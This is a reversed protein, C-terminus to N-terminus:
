RAVMLKPEEHLFTDIVHNVKAPQEYHPMHGAEEIKVVSMSPFNSRYSVEMKQSFYPDSTGYILLLDSVSLDNLEDLKNQNLMNQWTSYNTYKYGEFDMFYALRKSYVEFMEKNYFEKRQNEVARPYWYAAMIFDSLVPVKLVPALKFDGSASPDILVMKKVRHPNKHAYDIGVIAGMSMAVISFTDTVHLEELLETLQGLFLEPSNRVAPRDTYGRGYLDYTLTRYGKENFYSINKDWVEMGTIGGGHIFVLLEATPPGALKYHVEGHRLWIFKGPADKRVNDTLVSNEQNGKFFLYISVFLSLFLTGFIAMLRIM